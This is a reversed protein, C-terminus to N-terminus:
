LLCAQMVLLSANTSSAVLAAGVQGLTRAVSESGAAGGRESVIQRLEMQHTGVALRRSRGVIVVLTPGSSHQQMQAAAM